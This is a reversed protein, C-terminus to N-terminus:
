RKTNFEKFGQCNRNTKRYYEKLLKSRKTVVNRDFLDTKTQYGYRKINKAFFATAKRIGLSGTNRNPKVNCFTRLFNGTKKKLEEQLNKKISVIKYIENVM